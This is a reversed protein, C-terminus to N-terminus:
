FSYGVIDPNNDPIISKYKYNLTLCKGFLDYWFQMCEPIVLIYILQLLSEMIFLGKKIFLILIFFKFFFNFLRSM